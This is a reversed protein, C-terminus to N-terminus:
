YGQVTFVYRDIVVINLDTPGKIKEFIQIM